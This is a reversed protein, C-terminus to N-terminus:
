IDGFINKWYVRWENNIKKITTKIPVTKVVDGDKIFDLLYTVKAQNKNISLVQINHADFVYEITYVKLMGLGFSMEFMNGYIPLKDSDFNDFASVNYSFNAYLKYITESIENIQKPIESISDKKVLKITKIKNASENKAPLINLLMTDNTIFVINTKITDIIKGNVDFNKINLTIPDTDFNIEALIGAKNKKGFYKPSADIGVHNIVVLNTSDEFVISKLNITTDTSEWAGIQKGKFKLNNNNNCSFLIVLSCFIIYNFISKM